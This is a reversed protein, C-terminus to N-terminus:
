IGPGDVIEVPYVVDNVIVENGDLQEDVLFFVGRRVHAFHGVARGTLTLKGDKFSATGSFVVETPEDFNALHEKVFQKPSGDYSGGLWLLAIADNGGYHPDRCVGTTETMGILVQEGEFDPRVANAPSGSRRMFQTIDPLEVGYCIGWVSWYWM